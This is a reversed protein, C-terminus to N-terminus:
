SDGGGGVWVVVYVGWREGGVRGGGARGGRMGGGEWARGEWREGGVRWARDEWRGCEWEGVRSGGGEWRGGVEKFVIFTIRRIAKLRLLPLRELVLKGLEAHWTVDDWDRWNRIAVSIINTPIEDSQLICVSYM